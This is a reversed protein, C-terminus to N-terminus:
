EQDEENFVIKEGDKTIIYTQEEMEEIETMIIYGMVLASLYALAAIVLTAMGALLINGFLTM